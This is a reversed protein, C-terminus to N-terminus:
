AREPRRMCVVALAALVGGNVATWVTTSGAWRLTLYGIVPSLTLYIELGVRQWMTKVYRELIEFKSAHYLALVVAAGCCTIAGVLDSTRGLSALVVPITHFFPYVGGFESLVNGVRMYEDFQASDFRSLSGSSNAYVILACALVVLSLILAAVLDTPFRDSALAFGTLFAVATFLIGTFSVSATAENARVTATELSPQAVDFVDGADLPVLGVLHFGRDMSAEILPGNDAPLLMRTEEDYPPHAQSRKLYLRDRGAGYFDRLFAIAVFERALLLKLMPKNDLATTTEVHAPSEQSRALFEDVLASGVGQGRVDEDVAVGALYFRRSEGEAIGWHAFGIVNGQPDVAALVRNGAIGLALEGESAQQGGSLSAFALRDLECVRDLDGHLAERLVVPQAQRPDSGM